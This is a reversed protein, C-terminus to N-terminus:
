GSAPGQPGLRPAAKRDVDITGGARQRPRPGHQPGHRPGHVSMLAVCGVTVAIGILQLLGLHERLIVTGFMVSSLPQILLLTAGLDAPLRVTAFGICVFGILQGCLAVAALWAWAAPPMHVTLSQTGVGVAGIVVAASFTGLTVPGFARRPDYATARRNCYLYGAYCGGAAIGLITGRVPNAAEVARSGIGGTLLLGIIMAPLVIGFRRSLPAKDLVRALLPFVLLQSGILVTSVAAGVDMISQTWMVYDCALLCGSALSWLVAPRPMRGRRRLEFVFIVGLPLLALACRYFAATTTGQGSLRILTSTAGVSTCGLAM